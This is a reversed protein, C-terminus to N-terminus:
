ISSLINRVYNLDKRAQEIIERLPMEEYECHISIPGKFDMRKLIEFVMRWPVLGEGLPVVEARWSNDRKIWAFDKVAVMRIRDNLMDMGMLWGALGGEVVMHGPDVYAGVFDPNFDRLIELVVAPEASLFMGSHTHIVATINYKRSIKEIEKLSKRAAEIQTKLKGFGKYLWYGLKLYKVSCESATKFTEEAYPENADVISTTIMPVSLGKSKLIDIAEPLKEEVEEPTIYGGPRVTLDVGEFGIDAMVSAFELLPLKQFMKSFIVIEM